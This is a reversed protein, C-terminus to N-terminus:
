GHPLCFLLSVLWDAQAVESAGLMEKLFREVRDDLGCEGAAGDVVL